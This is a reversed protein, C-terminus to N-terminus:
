MNKGVISGLAKVAHKVHVPAVCVNTSYDLLYAYCFVKQHINRSNEKTTSPEVYLWQVHLIERHKKRATYLESM